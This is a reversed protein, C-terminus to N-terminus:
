LNSGPYKQLFNIGVIGTTGTNMSEDDGLLNQCKATIFQPNVLIDFILNLV